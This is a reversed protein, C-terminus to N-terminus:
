SHNEEANQQEIQGTGANLKGIDRYAEEELPLKRERLKRNIARMVLDSIVAFVPVGLLMGAFGFLGGFFIISFMVWFSSLGTSNGLIKPGLINGDFQQLVLIFLLFYLCKLPSVLLVLIASPVAGIFPGFFPIVNTVGIIASLLMPYPMKMLQLCVFCIFGIIISDVIKGVIFGGFIQNVFRFEEVIANAHDTRFVAYIFKRFQALLSEKINLLYVMAILGILWNKVLTLIGMVGSSVQIIIDTLRNMDMRRMYDEGWRQIEMYIRNLVDIVVQEAEPNNKLLSQVFENINKWYAPLSNWIGIVSEILQPLILMMVGSVVFVVLVVSCVTAAIKAVSRVFSVGLKPFIRTLKEELGERVMNYVPAALYALVAGCIFPSLIDVLGRVIGKFAEWNQICTWLLIGAAIVCFASLGARIYNRNNKVSM